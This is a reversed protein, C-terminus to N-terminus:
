CLQLDFRCVHGEKEGLKPNSNNINAPYVTEENKKGDPSCSWSFDQISDSPSSPQIKV